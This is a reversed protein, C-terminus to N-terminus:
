SERKQLFSDVRYLAIISLADSIEGSDVRSLAESFPIKTITLDETTDPLSEVESLETALFVYAVESSFCNSLFFEAGIQQWNAAKLGAEEQLERKATELAGQQGESGGEIVEWSYRKTPYRYQGVLYINHQSDLAVVATAIRTDVVSYIGAAGSPTIVQDERIRIWPNKYIEQSSLTQWPNKFTQLPEPFKSPKIKFTV